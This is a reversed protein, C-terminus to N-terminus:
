IIKEYVRKLFEVAEERTCFSRYRMEGGPEGKVLEAKEAWLRSEASWDSPLRKGLQAFYKEAMADFEEQTIPKEESQTGKKLEKAVDLRFDDMTKGYKPFWHMVDAHNSAIGRKAGESHCIVVGDKLPDLDYERCLYATLEVAKQYVDRFYKGDTLGDECIECSIHTNNGAGGCHWGRCTWPLTQYVAISGDATKGIFGHVCVPIGRRNWDNKNRNEGLIGDDPQVYRKLNPNNAGTSHIMIGRPVITRGARYCDNETLFCKYIKM